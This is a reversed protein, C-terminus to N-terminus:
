SRWPPDSSSSHSCVCADVRGTTTRCHRQFGLISAAVGGVGWVIAVSAIVWRPAESDRLFIFGAYIVAFAILPIIIALFLRGFWAVLRAGASMQRDDVTDLQAM